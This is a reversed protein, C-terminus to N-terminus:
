NRKIIFCLQPFFISIKLAEKTEPNELDAGCYYNVLMPM